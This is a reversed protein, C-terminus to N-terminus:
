IILFITYETRKMNIMLEGATASGILDVPVMSRKKEGGSSRSIGDYLLDAVGMFFDEDFSSILKL